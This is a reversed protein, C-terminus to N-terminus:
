PLSCSRSFWNCVTVTRQKMEEEDARKWIYIKRKVPKSCRVSIDTDTFVMDHDSIGPLPECRNVLSPRNTMFLDLTSDKRTPFNVMQEFGCTHVMELFWKNM